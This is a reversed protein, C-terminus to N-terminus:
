PAGSRGLISRTSFRCVLQLVYAIKGKSMSSLTVALKQVISVLQTQAGDMIADKTTAAATKKDDDLQKKTDRKITRVLEFIYEIFDSTHLDSFYADGFPHHGPPARIKSLHAFGNPKNPTVSLFKGIIGTLRSEIVTQYVDTGAAGRLAESNSYDKSQCEVTIINLNAEPHATVM